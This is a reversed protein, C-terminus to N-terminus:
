HCSSHGGSIRSSQSLVILPSLAAKYLYPLSAAAINGMSLSEIQCSLYPLTKHISAWIQPAIYAEVKVVIRHASKVRRRTPHAEGFVSEPAKVFSDQVESISQVNGAVAGIRSSLLRTTTMIVIAQHAYPSVFISAWVTRFRATGVSKQRQNATFGGPM